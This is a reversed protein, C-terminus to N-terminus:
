LPSIGARLIQDSVKLVRQASREPIPSGQGTIDWFEASPTRAALRAEHHLNRGHAVPVEPPGELLEDIVVIALPIM